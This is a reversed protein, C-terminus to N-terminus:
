KKSYHRALEKFVDKSYYDKKVGGPASVNLYRVKHLNPKKKIERMIDYFRQNQKFDSFLQRCNKLVDHYSYIYVKKFLSDEEIRIKQASEDESINISTADPKDSITIESPLVQVHSGAPASIVKRINGLWKKKRLEIERDIVTLLDSSKAPESKAGHRFYLTGQAFATRQKGSEIQYTGPKIFILPPFVPQIVIAAVQSRKRKILIIEFDAFQVGTYKNIKDILTAQDLNFIPSLDTDAKKGNDKVGILIIGGGTNAMAVIDKIIECWDRQSNTDLKEKFDVFKSERQATKAKQILQETM